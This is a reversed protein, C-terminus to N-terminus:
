KKKAEDVIAQLDAQLKDAEANVDIKAGGDSYILTRLSNFRDMGKKFNPFDSEHNPTVTYDFAKPVLQWNTVSPYKKSLNDVFAKQDSSRAPFAGYTVLLDKSADGLLYSLVQFAEAPHKTGKTIRFTDADVTAYQKGNYSPTAAIDWKAKLDAVCCTYWLHTKAMAVKGSAFSNGAGLTKSDQYTQSPIFHDKWVGNFTWQLNDRWNQPITVKGTKADYFDGGGFASMDNRMAGFQYVFGFQAIKATDFDKSTADNGKEDVTLIKALEALKDYTWPTEKGDKDKYPAGWDAPPYALGAEDFLDKNYYLFSPYTAFPIGLQGESTTYLKVLGDPFQTLDYKADKILPTLDAWQGSFTNSGSFGVPGVIDPPNGSAFLTALADYATQNNAAINIVLNIKDQKANFDAVVKKQVDQQQPDTGTGVGVFWTITVKDQARAPAGAFSVALLAVLLAALISKRM